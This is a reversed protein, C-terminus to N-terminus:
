QIPGPAIATTTITNTSFAVVDVAHERFSRDGYAADVTQSGVPVNFVLAAGTSSTATAAPDPVDSAGAYVVTGGGPSTVTAGEVPDGNCDLVLLAIFGNEPMQTQGAAFQLLSFTDASMRVIAGSTTDAYLPNPPFLLVDYYGANDPGVGRAYGDLPVGGTDLAIAYTGDAASTAPSGQQADSGDYATITTGEIATSGNADIAYALGGFSITAPATTPMAAGLCALAAPNADPRPAADPVGADPEADGGGCAALAAPTVLLLYVFSLATASRM